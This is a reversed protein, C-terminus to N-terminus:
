KGRLYFRILFDREAPLTPIVQLEKELRTWKAPEIADAPMCSDRSLGRAQDGSQLSAGITLQDARALEGPALVVHLVVGTLDRNRIVEVVMGGIGQTDHTLLHRSLATLTEPTFSTGKLTQLHQTFRATAKEQAGGAPAQAGLEVNVQSIQLSKAAPLMPLRADPGPLVPQGQQTRWRNISALREQERQKRDASATFPHTGPDIQHLAWSALDCIRPDIFAFDRYSGSLGEDVARDSLALILLETAKASAEPSPRVPKAVFSSYRPNAPLLHAMERVLHSKERANRLNWNSSLLEFARQEGTAILLSGLTCLRNSKESYPPYGEVAQWMEMMAPLAEPHKREWLVRAAVIRLDMEEGSGLFKLLLQTAEPSPNPKLHEAYSETIERQEAVKAGALVAADVADPYKEKLKRVMEGPWNKGSAIDDVLAQKEGKKQIVQWWDEAEKRVTAIDEPTSSREPSSRRLIISNGSIRRLIIAACDANTLIYHSFRFDRGYQVSRTLRQDALAAILQPVAEHGLKVLRHATTEHTREGRTAFIDCSGPQSMQFGNLDRLRFLYEEVQKEVPLKSLELDNVSVHTADEAIMGQLVTALEAARGAHRSNPFKAAIEQFSSLLTTRPVLPVEERVIQEIGGAQLITRWMALEGLERELDHRLGPLDTKEHGQRDPLSDAAEFLAQARANDGKRWCAYGLLATQARRSPQPFLYAIHFPPNAGQQISTLLEDMDKELSRPTFGVRAYSRDPPSSTQLRATTQPLHLAVFSTDDHETVFLRNTVPTQGTYGDDTYSGTWVEAWIAEKPDPYKLSQYWEFCEKAKPSLAPTQAELPSPALGALLPLILSLYLVPSKMGTQLISRTRDAICTRQPPTPHGRSGTKGKPFPHM